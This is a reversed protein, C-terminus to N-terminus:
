DRHPSVSQIHDFKFFEHDLWTEPEANVGALEDSILLVNGPDKPLLVYRGDYLGHLGPPVSPDEPRLHRKGVCLSNLLQGKAGIFEILTSGGVDKGPEDLEVRALQSPGVEESQVVKLDAM